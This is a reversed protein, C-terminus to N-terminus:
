RKALLWHKVGWPFSTERVVRLGSASFISEYDHAFCHKSNISQQEGNFSSLYLFRGKVRSHEMIFTSINGPPVHLAVHFSLVFDFSGDKYPLSDTGCLDPLAGTNNFCIWRMSNAIDCMRYPCPLSSKLRLYVDGHGSGVDLINRPAIKLIVAKLSNIESYRARARYRAGRAEWYKLPDYAKIKAM